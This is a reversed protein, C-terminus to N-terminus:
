LRAAEPRGELGQGRDGPPKLEHRTATMTMSMSFSKPAGPAGRSLGMPRSMRGLGCASRAGARLSPLRTMVVGAPMAAVAAVPAKAALDPRGDGRAGPADAARRADLDRGLHRRGLTVADAEAQEAERGRVDHGAIREDRQARGLGLRGRGRILPPAAFLYARGGGRDGAM